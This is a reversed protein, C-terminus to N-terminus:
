AVGTVPLILGHKQALTDNLVMVSTAPLAWTRVLPKLALALASQLDVLNLTPVGKIVLVFRFSASQIDLAKFSEPLETQANAHRKLCAAVGLLFGNTLKIRIDDIYSNLERPCSKKAEVVWVVPTKDGQQLLLFEAMKVGERIGQYCVSKEIYFCQGPPYPGFIMDSESIAQTTM